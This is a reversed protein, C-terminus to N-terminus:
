AVEKYEADFLRMVEALDSGAMVTALTVTESNADAAIELLSSLAKRFSERREAARMQCETKM